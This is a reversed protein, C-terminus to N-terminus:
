CFSDTIIPLPPHSDALSINQSELVYVYKSISARNMSKIMRYKVIIEDRHRWQHTLYPRSQYIVGLVILRTTGAQRERQDVGKAKSIAKM